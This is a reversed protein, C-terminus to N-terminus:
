VVYAHMLTLTFLMTACVAAATAVKEYQDKLRVDTKHSLLWGKFLYEYYSDGRAGMTITSGRFTGKDPSIWIPVLGDTTPQRFVVDM